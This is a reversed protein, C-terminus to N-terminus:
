AHRAAKALVFGIAFAGILVTGPNKRAFKRARTGWGSLAKQADRAQAPLTEARQEIQEVLGAVHRVVDSKLNM